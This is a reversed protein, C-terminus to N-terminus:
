GFGSMVAADGVHISKESVPFLPDGEVELKMLVLDDTPHSVSSTLTVATTRDACGDVARASGRQDAAFDVEIHGPASESVCHAASLVWGPAIRTATCTGLVPSDGANSEFLWVRGIADARQELGLVAAADSTGGFLAQRSEGLCRRAPEPASCA